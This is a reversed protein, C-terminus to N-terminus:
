LWAVIVNLYLLGALSAKIDDFMQNQILKQWQIYLVKESYGFNAVGVTIHGTTGRSLTSFSHEARDGLDQILNCCFIHRIGCRMNSALSLLPISDAPSPIVM